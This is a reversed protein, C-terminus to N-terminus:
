RGLVRAVVAPVRGQGSVSRRGRARARDGDAPQIEACARQTLSGTKIQGTNLAVCLDAITTDETEGFSRQSIAGRPAKVRVEEIASRSAPSVKVLGDASNAPSSVCLVWMSM